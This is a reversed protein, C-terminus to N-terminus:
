NKFLEKLSDMLGKKKPKEPEYLKKATADRPDLVLAQKFAAQAMGKWGKQTYAQGLASHYKAVHADLAIAKQYVNIADDHRNKQSLRLGEKYLDDAQKKKYDQASFKSGSADPRPASVPEATPAPTPTAAVAAEVQQEPPLHEALLRRTDLYQAKKTDNYLVEYARNIMSFREKAADQEASGVPFRDPHFQKALAKYANRVEEKPTEPTIGLVAFLDVRWLDDDDLTDVM